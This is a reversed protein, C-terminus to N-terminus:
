NMQVHGGMGRSFPYPSLQNLRRGPALLRLVQYPIPVAAVPAGENGTGSPEPDFRQQSWDMCGLRVGDRFPNDTRESSLAHIMDNNDVLPVKSANESLVGVV